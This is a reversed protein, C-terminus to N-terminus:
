CNNSKIGATIGDWEGRESQERLPPTCHLHPPADPPQNSSRNDHSPITPSRSNAQWSRRYETSNTLQSLLTSCVPFCIAAHSSEHLQKLCRILPHNRWVWQKVRRTTYVKIIKEVWCLMATCKLIRKALSKGRQSFSAKSATYKKKKKKKLLWETTCYCNYLINYVTLVCCMLITIYHICYTVSHSCTEVTFPRWWAM